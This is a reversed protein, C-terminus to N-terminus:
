RRIPNRKKDTKQDVPVAEMLSGEAILRRYYATDPVTEPTEGIYERPKGEKPCRTGPKATVEM